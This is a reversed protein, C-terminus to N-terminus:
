TLPEIMGHLAACFLTLAACCYYSLQWRHARLERNRRANEEQMKAKQAPDERKRCCPLTNSVVIVVMCKDMGKASMKNGREHQSRHMKQGEDSKRHNYVAIPMCSYVFMCPMTEQHREAATITSTTCTVFYLRLEDGTSGGIRYVKGTFCRKM